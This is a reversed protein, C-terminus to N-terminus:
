LSRLSTLLEIYAFKISCICHKLSSPGTDEKTETSLLFLALLQKNAAVLVESCAVNQIQVADLGAVVDKLENYLRLAEAAVERAPKDALLELTAVNEAFSKILAGIAEKDGVDALNIAIGEASFKLEGEGIEDIVFWEGDHDVFGAGGRSRIERASELAKAKNGFGRTGTAYFEIGPLEIKNGSPTQKCGTFLNVAFAAVVITVVTLLM